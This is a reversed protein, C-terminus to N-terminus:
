AEEALEALVGRLAAKERAPSVVGRRARCRATLDAIFDPEREARALLRALAQTRGFPFLGPYDRGLLGKMAPIRSAIVPTGAALAESVVNAGGETESTVVLLRSRAILARAKWLPLEGLWRYRPNASQEALAARGLAETLARGAHLVRLRSGAPLLRAAKAARLPDKVERLHAVVAVDFWRVGRRPRRRVAPASQPLVHVRSRLEPPLARSAGAHLVIFRDALRLSRRAAPKSHIDHYLDTGTLAVVVPRRPHRERSARVAAASKFAHLAIMADYPRSTPGTAIFARHGLERLMRQWRLATIRNGLRSGAPAPCILAVRV